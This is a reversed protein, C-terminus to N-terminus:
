VSSNELLSKMEKSLNHLRMKVEYHGDTIKKLNVIKGQLSLSDTLETPLEVHVRSGPPLGQPCRLLVTEGHYDVIGTAVLTRETQNREM